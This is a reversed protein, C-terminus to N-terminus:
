YGGTIQTAYDTPTQKRKEQKNMWEWFADGEEMVQEYQSTMFATGYNYGRIRYADLESPDTIVPQDGSYNSFSLQTTLRQPVPAEGLILEAGKQKIGGKIGSTLSEIVNEPAFQAQTEAWLDKAYGKLGEGIKQGFPVKTTDPVMLSSSDIGASGKAWDPTITEGTMIDIDPDMAGVIKGLDDYQELPTFGKQKMYDPLEDPKYEFGETMEELTPPEKLSAALQDSIPTDVPLKGAWGEAGWKKVGEAWKGLGEWPDGFFTGPGGFAVGIKNGIWKLSGSVAETVGRYVTGVAKGAHYIGRMIQGFARGAVSTGQALTTAWTGLKGWLAGAYPMLFMLGIHGLIGLKGFVGGIKKAVRKIGGGIKRIVKKIGKFIKSLLGM